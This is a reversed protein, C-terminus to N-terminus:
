GANKKDYATIKEDIEKAWKQVNEPTAADLHAKNTVIIRVMRGPLAVAAEAEDKRICLFGGRPLDTLSTCQRAKAKQDALLSQTDTLNSDFARLQAYRDTVSSNSIQCSLGTGARSKASSLGGTSFVDTTGTIAKVTASSLLGCAVPASTSDDSQCGALAVAGVVATLLAAGASRTASSTM